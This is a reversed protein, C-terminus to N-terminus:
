EEYGNGEQAAYGSLKAVRLAEDVQERIKRWDGPTMAISPGIGVGQPWIVVDGGTSVQAVKEATLAMSTIQLITLTM